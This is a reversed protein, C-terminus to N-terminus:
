SCDGQENEEVQPTKLKHFGESFFAIDMVVLPIAPEILKWGNDQYDDCCKRYVLELFIGCGEEQWGVCFLRRQITIM